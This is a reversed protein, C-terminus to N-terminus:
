KLHARTGHHCVLNIFEPSLRSTGEASEVAPCRWVKPANPFHLEPAPHGLIPAWPHSQGLANGARVLSTHHGQGMWQPHAIGLASALSGATPVRPQLRGAVAAEGM